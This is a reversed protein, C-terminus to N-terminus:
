QSSQVKAPVFEVYDFVAHNEQAPIHDGIFLLNEVSCHVTFTIEDGFAMQLKKVVRGNVIWEILYNGNKGHEVEISITHWAESAILMQSSSSPFGQSTCYCVLETQSAKLAQRLTAKGYGIEFDVEHQDDSYLFAGTSAQDGEGMTPVYVRWTYKGAGFRDTTRVKVRDRTQARTSIRLAGQIIGYSRPSSGQSDDQWEKLDGFEWRYMRVGNGCGALLTIVCFVAITTVPKM